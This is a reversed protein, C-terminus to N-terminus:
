EMAYQAVDEVRSKNLEVIHEWPRMLPPIFQLVQEKSDFDYIFWM